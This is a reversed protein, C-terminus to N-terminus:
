IMLGSVTEYRVRVSQRASAQDGTNAMARRLQESDATESAREGAQVLIALKDNGKQKNARQEAKAQVKLETSIDQLVEPIDEDETTSIGQYKNLASYCKQLDYFSGLKVGKHQKWKEYDQESCNSVLMSFTSQM